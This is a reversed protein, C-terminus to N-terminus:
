RRPKTNPPNFTGINPAPVLAQLLTNPWFIAESVAGSASRSALYAVSARLATILAGIGIAFLILTAQRHMSKVLIPDLIGGFGIVEKANRRTERPVRQKSEM